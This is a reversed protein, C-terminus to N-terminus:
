KLRKMEISISDNKLIMKQADLVYKMEFLLEMQSSDPSLVNIEDNPVIFKLFRIKGKQRDLEYKGSHVEELSNNNRISFTSVEQFYIREWDQYNMPQWVGYFENKTMIKEKLFYTMTFLGIILVPVYVYKAKSIKNMWNPRDHHEFLPPKELFFNYFAKFESLFVFLAVVTLTVAMGKAGGIDYAFDLVLINIMISLYLCIGLRTTKRFFLLFAALIQSGAIFVGYWFSYGYFFWTLEFGSLQGINKDWISPSSSFQTGMIKAVAYMLIVSALFYRAITHLIPHLKKWNMKKIVAL